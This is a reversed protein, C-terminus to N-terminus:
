KINLLNTEYDTLFSYDSEEIIGFKMKFVLETHPMSTM